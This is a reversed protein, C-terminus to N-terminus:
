YIENLLLSEYEKLENTIFRESNVLTARREYKLDIDLDKLAGKTIEIYYGTVRNYGVKLNKIGTLEKQKKEYDLIWNKGNSSINKLQDLRENYGDKIIGGEKLTFPPDEKLAKDYLDYLSKHINIKNAINKANDLNLNLLIEKIKPAENLSRKLWTLDKANVTNSSIRGIIRELDYVNKLSSKIEEKAIYDNFFAEVFDLRENILDKDLLPKLLWNKLCRSGMATSCKDLLYFLSGNKNNLRLTEILELNEKSFNDLRMYDEDDIM